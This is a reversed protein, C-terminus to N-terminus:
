GFGILPRAIDDFIETIGVGTAVLAVHGKM